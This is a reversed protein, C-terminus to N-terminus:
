DDSGYVIDWDDALQDAQSCQWPVLTGDQARIAIHPVTAAMSGIPQVNSLANGQKVSFEQVGQLFIFQDKGNWGRRKVAKGRKVHRLADSWDM